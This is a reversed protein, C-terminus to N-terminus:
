TQERQKYLKQQCERVAARALVQTTDFLELDCDDANVVLPLETCGLIIAEAGRTKMRKIITQLIEKGGVLNGSLAGMIVATVQEREEETPKIIEVEDDSYLDSDLTLATGLLGVKRYNKSKVESFVEDPISLIPVGVAARMQPLYVQVTNCAIAIFDVRAQELKRVGGVLMAVVEDEEGNTEVVDPLPLSFIFFPPFDSDYKAGYEKQFIQVIKLYLDATAEPGMGGLIGITKM